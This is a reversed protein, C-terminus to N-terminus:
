EFLLLQTSANKSPTRPSLVRQLLLYPTMFRQRPVPGSSCGCCTKFPLWKDEQESFFFMTTKHKEEEGEM